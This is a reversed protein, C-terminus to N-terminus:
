LRSKSESFGPPQSQIWKKKGYCQGAHSWPRRTVDNFTPLFYSPSACVIIGAPTKLTASILPQQLSVHTGNELVMAYAYTM